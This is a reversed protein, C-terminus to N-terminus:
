SSGISTLHQLWNVKRKMAVWQIDLWRWHDVQCKTVRTIPRIFAPFASLAIRHLHSTRLSPQNLPCKMLNAQLSRFDLMM